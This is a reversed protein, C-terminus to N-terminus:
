YFIKITRYTTKKKFSNIDLNNTINFTKIINPLIFYDNCILKQQIFDEHEMPATFHITHSNNLIFKLFLYEYIKKFFLSSNSRKRYYVSLSGCPRLIIKCRTIKGILVAIVTTLRYVGHIHLIVSENSKLHKYLGYALSFSLKLRNNFLTKYIRVACKSPFSINRRSIFGKPHDHNTSFSM